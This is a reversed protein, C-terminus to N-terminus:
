GSSARGDNTAIANAVQQAMEDNRCPLVDTISKARQVKTYGGFFPKRLEGVCFNKLSAMM